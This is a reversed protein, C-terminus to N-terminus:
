PKLSKICFFLQQVIPFFSYSVTHTHTHTHTRTRAHVRARRRRHRHRHAHTLSPAISHTYRCHVVIPNNGSQQQQKQVAAIIDIMGKGDSPIGIEPWGHFHFQRVLRTQKEQLCSLKAEIQTFYLFSRLSVHTPAYFPWMWQVNLESICIVAAHRSHQFDRLAHREEAATCLRWIFRQERSALLARVEGPTLTTPFSLLSHTFVEFMSNHFLLQM